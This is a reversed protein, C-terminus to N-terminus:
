FTEFDSNSQASIANKMSFIKLPLEDDMKRGAGLNIYSEPIDLRILADALKHPSSQTAVGFSIDSSYRYWVNKLMHLLDFTHVDFDTLVFSTLGTLNDHSELLLINKKFKEIIPKVFQLYKKDGDSATLLINVLSYQHHRLDSLIQLTQDTTAGQSSPVFLIPISPHKKDWPVM